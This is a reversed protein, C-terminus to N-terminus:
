RNGGLGGKISVGAKARKAYAEHTIGMADAIHKQEPTLDEDEVAAEASRRGGREGSQAAVRRQRETEKEAATPESGPPKLKGSRLFELEAKDAASEMALGAPMGQKVLEGYQLATAKFFESNRNKLDPFRGMLEQEKTLSAARNEILQEVEAKRIFGRQSALKDFGKAGGTTLVDLVDPEEEAVAAAAPAPAATKAKDAWYQTARNSEAVQEKLEDIQRQFAVTEPSPQAAAAAASAAAAPAAAEPTSSVTSPTM